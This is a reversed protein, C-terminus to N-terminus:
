HKFNGLLQLYCQIKKNGGSLVEFDYELNSHVDNFIITPNDPPLDPSERNVIIGFRNRAIYNQTIYASPFGVAVVSVHMGAGDNFAIHNETITPPNNFWQIRLGDGKNFRIVNRSVELEEYGAIPYLNIGSGGNSIITNNVIYVHGHMYGYMGVMWIFIADGLNEVIRNNRIYIFYNESPTAIQCIRIANRNKTFASDEIQIVTNKFWGQDPAYFGYSANVIICGKIIVTANEITDQLQIGTGNFIIPEAKTGTANIIANSYVWVRYDGTTIIEVGPEITLTVGEYVIIHGTLQYPSGYKTWTANESIVGSVPTAILIHIERETAFETTNWVSIYHIGMTADLPITIPTKFIGSSDTPVNEALATTNDWKISVVGDPDYYEGKAWITVGPRGFDITTQFLESASFVLTPTVIEYAHQTIFNGSEWVSVYHIGWTSRPITVNVAFAGNEDTQVDEVLITTNDWKLNLSSNPTFWTGRVLVYPEPRRQGYARAEAFTPVGDIFKWTNITLTPKPGKM